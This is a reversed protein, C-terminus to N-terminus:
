LFKTYHFNQDLPGLNRSFQDTLDNNEFIKTQIRTSYKDLHMYKLRLHCVNTDFHRYLLILFPKTLLIGYVRTILRM